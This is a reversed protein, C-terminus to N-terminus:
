ICTFVLSQVLNINVVYKGLSRKGLFMGFDKGSSCELMYKYTRHTGFM